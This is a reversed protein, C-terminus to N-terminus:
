SYKEKILKSIKKEIANTKDMARWDLHGPTAFEVNTKKATKTYMILYAEADYIVECCVFHLTHDKYEKKETIIM